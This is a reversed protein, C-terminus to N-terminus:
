RRRLRRAFDLLRARDERNLSRAVDALEEIEEPPSPARADAPPMAAAPPPPVAAARAAPAPAEHFFTSQPESIWTGPDSDSSTTEAVQVLRHAPVGLADAIASIANSSPNKKGAEIESLYPYSLGSREALEKRNVGRETRILRIARGIASFSGGGSKQRVVSGPYVSILSQAQM